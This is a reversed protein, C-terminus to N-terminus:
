QSVPRAPAGIVTTNPAVDKVVVANAGIRAGDGITVAGIVKAGTGIHVGKGIEAGNGNGAQLGITVWPFIVVGRGIEILGGMVVQGHAIYMGPQIVVWDGICVQKSKMALHHLLRPLVPVGLAQLRAKARYAVQASFADSVWVLRMAQALADILGRFESREGRYACTAKADAVVAALFHPHRAHIEALSSPRGTRTL